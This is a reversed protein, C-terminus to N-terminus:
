LKCYRRGIGLCACVANQLDYLEPQVPEHDSPVLPTVEDPPAQRGADRSPTRRSPRPEMYTYEPETTRPGTLQYPQPQRPKPLPVPPRSTIPRIGGQQAPNPNSQSPPPLGLVGVVNVEQYGEEAAPTHGNESTTDGGASTTPNSVDNATVRDDDVEAM